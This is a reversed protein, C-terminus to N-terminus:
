VLSNKSRSGSFHSVDVVQVARGFAGKVAEVFPMGQRLVKAAAEAAIFVFLVFPGFILMLVNMYAKLKKPVIPSFEFRQVLYMCLYFWLILFAIRVSSFLLKESMFQM